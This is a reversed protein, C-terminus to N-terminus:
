PTKRLPKQVFQQWVKFAVRNQHVPAAPLQGLKGGKEVWFKFQWGVHFNHGEFFQVVKINPSKSTNLHFKSFAVFTGSSM